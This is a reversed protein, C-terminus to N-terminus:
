QLATGGDRGGGGWRGGYTWIGSRVELQHAAHTPPRPPPLPPAPALELTAMSPDCPHEDEQVWAGGEDEKMWAGGMWEGDEVRRGRGM